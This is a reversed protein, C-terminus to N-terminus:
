RFNLHNEFLLHCDICFKNKGSYHNNTMNFHDLLSPRVQEGDIFNSITICFEDPVDNNVTVTRENSGHVGKTSLSVEFSQTSSMTVCLCVTGSYGINM